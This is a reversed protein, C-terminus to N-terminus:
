EVRYEGPPQPSGRGGNSRGGTWRVLPLVRPDNAGQVGHRVHDGDTAHHVHAQLIVDARRPEDDSGDTLVYASTKLLNCTLRASVSDTRLRDPLGDGTRIRGDSYARALTARSDITVTTRGTAVTTRDNAVANVDPHREPM